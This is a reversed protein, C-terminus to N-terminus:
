KFYEITKQLGKNLDTKPKWNLKQKAKTIDAKRRKPDDKPLTEYTIEPENEILSKIKKALDIIKIEKNSGLNIIEGTTDKKRMAKILGKIMDNVYCFSRTQTGDGYVTLPKNDLAQTVFNPIVRGDDRAMRPGYTNFIRIIRADVGNKIYNTTISEGLRKSEDYCSRPGNPNVNGWYEENQPHKEPNGYVESTSTFLFKSNKEKALDLLNKTGLSNTMAIEISHDKFDRPSARSALHFIEDFEIDPLDFEDRIDGKIFHFDEKENLHKINEKRGSGLNDFCYVELDEEILKDCLHSGLFGAGGPVLTKMKKM